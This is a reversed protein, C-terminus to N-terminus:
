IYGYMGRVSVDGSLVKTIEGNDKKVILSGDKDIDIAEGEFSNNISIVKVRKGLLVSYEKLKDLFESIGKVKFIEYNKEFENLIEAIIIKRKFNIGSFSKLSVAVEKIEDDFNEQNVNLGMGVIIYNIMDMDSNMETLIGCLKKSDLVIDNPWKIKVDFGTLKRLAEVASVALIPTISPAMFPSIEPRLIITMAIAEGNPTSWKRGMRGKGLTQEEAIIVTGEELGNEALEKAIINTSTVSNYYFIKRGMYETLLYDKIESYTLIDPRNVLRYGKKSVAEIEYGEEKLARIYKWVATRSIGLSSSIDEGSVFDRSQRLFELIKNKM